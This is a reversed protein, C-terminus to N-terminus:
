GNQPDGKSTQIYYIGLGVREVTRSASTASTKKKANLWQNLERILRESKKRSLARFDDLADEPIDHYIVQQQLYPDHAGHAINHSITDLLDKACTGMIEIKKAEDDRPVFAQRILRLKNDQTKEVANLRLLEELVARGKIDGSHKRALSVFSGDSGRLPLERPNGKRDVFEPDNLWATIVRLARNPKNSPPNPQLARQTGLRVVEKRSLGTVVAIRSVTPPEGGVALDASGVKVYTRRVIENFESHSVNFRLLLRVLPTLMKELAVALATEINKM